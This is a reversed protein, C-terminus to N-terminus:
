LPRAPVGIVTEGENVDKTVVAGAGVRAGDGISVNELVTANAGILVSKGVFVNGSVAAGPNVVSYDGMSVDHGITSNINIVCGKGIDVQTTICVGAQIFTGAGISVKTGITASPHKLIPFFVLDRYNEFCRERIVPSGMGLFAYDGKLLLNEQSKDLFIVQATNLSFEQIVSSVEKSFGSSGLIVVRSSIYAQLFNEAIESDEESSSKNTMQKSLRNKSSYIKSIRM